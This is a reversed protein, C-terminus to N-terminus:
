RKLAELFAIAEAPDGAKASQLAVELREKEERSFGVGERWRRVDEVVDGPGTKISGELSLLRDMPLGEGREDAAIAESSLRDFKGAAADEEIQRDWEDAVYESLWEQFERLQKRPLTEVGRKLEDLTKM